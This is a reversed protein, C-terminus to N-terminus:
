RAINPATGTRDDPSTEITRANRTSHTAYTTLIAFFIPFSYLEYTISYM